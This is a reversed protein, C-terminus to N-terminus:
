KGDVHVYCRIVCVVVGGLHVFLIFVTPYPCPACFLWQGSIMLIRYWEGLHIFPGRMTYFMCWEIRDCSSHVPLKLFLKVQDKGM